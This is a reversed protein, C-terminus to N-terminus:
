FYNAVSNTQNIDLCPENFYMTRQNLLFLIFFQRLLTVIHDTREYFVPHSDKEFCKLLLGAQFQCHSVGPHNRWLFYQDPPVARSCTFFSSSPLDTTAPRSLVEGISIATEAATIDKGNRAMVKRKIYIILNTRTTKVVHPNGKRVEVRLLSLGLLHYSLVSRASTSNYRM